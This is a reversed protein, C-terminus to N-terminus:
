HPKGSPESLFFGGTICSIQTWDRPQSSGRPFPIAVWKLIRAQFIGHVSSVPLICDRADCLTSCSQAVLANLILMYVSGSSSSLRKLRTRSQAVGYVAALCARSDKPNEPCPLPSGNGKGICSLSFHFHLRETTDSEKRGWSSYGVLSWGHSKGPLFVPTPQWKKRWLIKRVWPDFGPRGCQLCISEQLDVAIWNFNLFFSSNLSQLWHVHAWAGFWWCDLHTGICPM